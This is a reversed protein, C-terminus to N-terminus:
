DVAFATPPPTLITLPVLVEDAVPFTTIPDEDDMPVFDVELPM